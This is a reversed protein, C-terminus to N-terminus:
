GGERRWKQGGKGEKGGEIEGVKTRWQGRARGKEEVSKDEKGNDKNEKTSKGEGKGGCRDKM